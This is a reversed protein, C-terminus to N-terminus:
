KFVKVRPSAYLGRKSPKLGLSAFVEAMKLAVATPDLVPVGIEREVDSAYGALGACGLIIVEAGDDRVARGAVDLIRAKSREPDAEMELVAMDLPRVSALASGLGRSVVQREKSPVREAFSTLISFKFGLMAGVHLACEGIGVVPISVAERAAELGPDSFCALVVAEYGEREAKRVLELTPPIASSEEYASEISEPGHDPNVVTLQTTPARVAELELRIHNTMGSSTNPNIVMIRM